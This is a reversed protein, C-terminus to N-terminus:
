GAPFGSADGSFRGCIVASASLSSASLSSASSSAGRGEIDILYARAVSSLVWGPKWSRAWRASALGSSGRRRWRPTGGRRRSPPSSRRPNPRWSRTRQWRSRGRSRRPPPPSATCACKPHFGRGPRLALVDFRLVPIGATISSGGEFGAAMRRCAGHPRTGIAPKTGLLSEKSTGALRIRV